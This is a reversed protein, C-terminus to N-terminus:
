KDLNVQIRLNDHTDSPPVGGKFEDRRYEKSIKGLIQASPNRTQKLTEKSSIYLDAM